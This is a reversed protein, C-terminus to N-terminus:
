LFGELVNIISSRKEPNNLIEDVARGTLLNSLSKDSGGLLGLLGGGGGSSDSNNTLNSFINNGNPTTPSRSADYVVSKGVTDLTLYGNKISSAQTQLIPVLNKLLVKLDMIGHVPSSHNGPKLVLNDITANGIVLDGSKLDLVTTGIELTMVSPNPLTANAILNTGDERPPLLLQPDAIAFGAFSDLTNQKVDKDMTIHNKLKGLYATTKGNLSLPANKEFVVSHVYEKWQEVNLPTFQDKVALTTNGSITAGDLYVKAWTGNGKTKRNFLSIAIPDIRVPVGIPLKLATKLSLMISDPRPQMVSTETVVLSSNDVVRQAIAPIIVVFFIPLFVALFIISITNATEVHEITCGDGDDQPLPGRHVGLAYKAAKSGLYHQKEEM